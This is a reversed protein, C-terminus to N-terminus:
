EQEAEGEYEAWTKPTEWVRVKALRAEGLQHELLGWIVTAINEVSPNLERFEPCDLNLHRHDFRGIVREQVIQEFTSLPLLCGADGGQKGAITVELVYNHGHGNPNNCKGFYARNDQDTMTPCHLRHAASFEFSQTLHIMDCGWHKSYTLFPTPKLHLSVWAAGAPVQPGLDEAVASLIPALSREGAECMRRVLPISQSRFLRDIASINVLYGTRPDPRGAIVGQLVLYPEAGLAPPWGAYSNTVPSDAVPGLSFRVERM